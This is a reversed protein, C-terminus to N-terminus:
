MLILTIALLCQMLFIWGRRRGLFPPIYRDLLPAWIFKYIYPQTVLSLIGITMLSTNESAFWAQLTGGSLMFPLGSSFGLCLVTLFQPNLSLWYKKETM